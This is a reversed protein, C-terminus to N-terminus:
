CSSLRDGIHTFNLRRLEERRACREKTLVFLVDKDPSLVSHAGRTTLHCMAEFPLESAFSTPGDRLLLTVAKLSSPVACRQSDRALSHDQRVANGM